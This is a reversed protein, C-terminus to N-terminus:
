KRWVWWAYDAGPGGREIYEVGIPPQKSRPAGIVLMDRPMILLRPIITHLEDMNDGGWPDAVVLDFRKTRLMCESVYRLADMCIFKWGEPYHQAMETLLACDTDVVTVDTLGLDAVHVADNSGGMAMGGYLLLVSESCPNILPFDRM